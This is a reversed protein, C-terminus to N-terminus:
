SNTINVIKESIGICLVLIMIIVIIIQKTIMLYLLKQFDNSLKLLMFTLIINLM